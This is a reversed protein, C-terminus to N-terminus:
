GPIVYAEAAQGEPLPIRFEKIANNITEIIIYKM